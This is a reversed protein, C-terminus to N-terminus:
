VSQEQSSFAPHIRAMLYEDAYKGHRKAAMRKRGEIEFGFKQYLRQARENECFVTLEVRVLMLWNDALDIVAKMLATGVGRNQFDPHVMIGFTASHNLRPNRLISLGATGIIREGDEEDVVAVFQHDTRLMSDIYEQSFEVRESPVALINELVEPIIRLANLGEADTDKVPRIRFEM